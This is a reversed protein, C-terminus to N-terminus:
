DPFLVSVIWQFKGKQFCELLFYSCFALTNPMLCKMELMLFFTYVTKM